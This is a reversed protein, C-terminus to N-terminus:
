SRGFLARITQPIWGLATRPAPPNALHEVVVLRDIEGGLYANLFAPYDNISVCGNSQGNPGLMYSHALLGDRGFMSAGGVPTLRLARVGHFTEERLSLDYVNPPTPGRGKESVYRPDDLRDGLGSHAELWQGDPLYVRHASIDYIATRRDADPSLSDEPADTARLPKRAAGAPTLSALQTLGPASQGAARRPVAHGGPNPAPLPVPNAGEQTEVISRRPPWNFLTAFREDFSVGDGDADVAPDEASVDGRGTSRAWDSQRDAAAPELLATTDLSALRWRRDFLTQSGRPAWSELNSDFNKAQSTETVSVRAPMAQLGVAFGIALAAIGASIL